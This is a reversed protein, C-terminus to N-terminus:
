HHVHIEKSKGVADIADRMLEQLSEHQQWNQSFIGRIGEGGGLGLGSGGGSEFAIEKTHKADMKLFRRKDLFSALRSKLYSPDISPIETLFRVALPSSFSTGDLPVLIDGPAASIVKSGLSYFDVCDGYNSFASVRDYADFSGVLFHNGNKFICEPTDVESNIESSENGASQLVLYPVTPAYMEMNKIRAYQLRNKQIILEGLIPCKLKNRFINRVYADPGMGGYSENILDIRNALAFKQFTLERQIIEKTLQEWQSQTEDIVEQVKTMLISEACIIKFAEIPDRDDYEAKQILYLQVNPNKYAIVAATATGHSMKLNKHVYQVEESSLDSFNRSKVAQNWRERLALVRANQQPKYQLGEELKCATEREDCVLTYTGAVRDKFIPLSDDFDTDIVMVRHVQRPTGSQAENSSKKRFVCGMITAVLILSILGKKM